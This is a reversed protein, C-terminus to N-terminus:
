GRRGEWAWVALLCALLALLGILGIALPTVQVGRVVSSDTRRIGIWDSGGFVSAQRLAAFRPLSVDGPTGTGIRRVTGGTAQALPALHETTSVVEQFERPNDPGVNALVSLEGDRSATFGSNRAGRRARDRPGPAARTLTVTQTAGSPATLTVPRFEDKLTQREITFERGHARARLAEEELEPEKMLWHATRRLLDLYPGGGEIAARGCGCRTTLLEAVRGKSERSLVLLPKGDAGNM